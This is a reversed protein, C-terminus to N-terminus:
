TAGSAPGETSRLRGRHSNLVPEGTLGVNLGPVEMETQQMLERMRQVARSVIAPDRPRATVLYIQGHIEQGCIACVDARTAFVVCAFCIVFLIKLGRQMAQHLRIM